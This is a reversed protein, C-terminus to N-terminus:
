LCFKVKCLANSKKQNTPAGPIEHIQWGRGPHSGYNQLFDFIGNHINKLLFFVRDGPHLITEQRSRGLKQMEERRQNVVIQIQGQFKPLSFSAQKECIFFLPCVFCKNAHSDWLTRSQKLILSPVNRRCQLFLSVPFIFLPWTLLPRLYCKSSKAKQKKPGCTRCMSMGLRMQSRCWLERCHWISLGNLSAVSWVQM